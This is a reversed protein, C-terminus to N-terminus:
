FAACLVSCDPVEGGAKKVLQEAVKEWNLGFKRVCDVMRKDEEPTWMRCPLFGKEHAVEGPTPEDRKPPRKVRAGRGEQADVGLERQQQKQQAQQQAAQERHLAQQQAAAERQQERQQHLMVRDLHRQQVRQQAQQKSSGSSSNLAPVASPAFTVTVMHADNLADILADNSSRRSPTCNKPLYIAVRKRAFSSEKM